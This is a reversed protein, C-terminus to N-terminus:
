GTSQRDNELFTAAETPSNFEHRTGDVIVRLKAPFLLSFRYGAARLQVKVPTFASRKKAVEASYDAYIHIESGRYSLPSKERALQMIRQKMQFHHICAIFPRPTGGQRRQIAVRHARDVTLARPFADTGFIEGLCSEIFSTPHIGEAGEPIGTIRINCRKSRNELDESKLKLQEIEKVLNNVTSELTTIIILENIINIELYVNIFFFGSCYWGFPVWMCTCKSLNWMWIIYFVYSLLCIPTKFLDKLMFF